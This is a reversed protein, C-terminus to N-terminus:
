TSCFSNFQKKSWLVGGSLRRTRTIVLPPIQPLSSSGWRCARYAMTPLRFSPDRQNLAHQPTARPCRLHPVYQEDVGTRGRKASGHPHPRVAWIHRPRPHGRASSHQNTPAEPACTRLRPKRSIRFLIPLFFYDLAYRRAITSKGVGGKGSAVAIVKDVNAIGRKEIPGGRRPM